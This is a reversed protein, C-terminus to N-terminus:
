LINRSNHRVVRNPYPTYDGDINTEMFHDRRADEETDENTGIIYHSIIYLNLPAFVRLSHLHDTVNTTTADDEVYDPGLEDIREAEMRLLEVERRLREHEISPDDFLPALGASIVVDDMPGWFDDEDDARLMPDNNM